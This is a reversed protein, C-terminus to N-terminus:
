CQGSLKLHGYQTHKFIRITGCVSKASKLLFVRKLQKLLSNFTATDVKFM